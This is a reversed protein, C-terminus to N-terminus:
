SRAEMASAPEGDPDGAVKVDLSDPGAESTARSEAEGVVMRIPHTLVSALWGSAVALDHLAMTSASGFPIGRVALVGFPEGQRDLLPAAMDADGMRAADLDLARTPCRGSLAAAVVHDGELTPNTGDSSWSGSCSLIMPGGDPMATPAGSPSRGVLKVVGARAELCTMALTLAAGAAEEPAGRELGAAVHRLFTLSLNMRDARSRLAVLADQMERATQRDALSQNKVADLARVLEDRRSGQTSAVWGVLVAAVLAVLDAGGDLREGLARMEGLIEALAVVSFAGLALSLLLGKTGYRASLLLIAIWVLHPGHRRLGADSPSLMLAIALVMASAVLAEFFITRDAVVGALAIPAERRAPLVM